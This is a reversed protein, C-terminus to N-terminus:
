SKGMKKKLAIIIAAKKGNLPPPSSEEDEYQSEEEGMPEEAEEGAGYSKALEIMRSTMDQIQMAMDMLEQMNEKNPM